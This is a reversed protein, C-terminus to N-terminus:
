DGTYALVVALTIAEALEPLARLKLLLSAEIPNGTQMEIKAGAVAREVAGIVVDFRALHRQQQVTMM